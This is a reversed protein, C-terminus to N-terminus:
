VVSQSEQYSMALSTELRKAEKRRAQSSRNVAAQNAQAWILKKVQMNLNISYEFHFKLLCVPFSSNEGTDLPKIQTKCRQPCIWSSGSGGNTM